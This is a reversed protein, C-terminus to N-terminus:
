PPFPFSYVLFEESSVKNSQTPHPVKFNLGTKFLLHDEQCVFFFFDFKCFQDVAKPSGGFQIM